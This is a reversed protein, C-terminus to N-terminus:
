HTIWMHLTGNLNDAAANFTVVTGDTTVAVEDDTTEPEWAVTDIATEGGPTYTDANDVLQTLFPIIVHKLGTLERGFGGAAGTGPASGTDVGDPNIAALEQGGYDTILLCFYARKTM